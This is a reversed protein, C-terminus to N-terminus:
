APANVWDQVYSQVVKLAGPNPEVIYPRGPDDVENFPLLAVNPLKSGPFRLFPLQKAKSVVMVTWFLDLTTEMADVCLKLAKIKSEIAALADQWKPARPTNLDHVAVIARKGGIELQKKLSEQDYFSWLDLPPTVIGILVDACGAELAHRLRGQDIAEMTVAPGSVPSMGLDNRIWAALDGPSDHRLTPKAAALRKFDDTARESPLWLVIRRQPKQEPMKDFKPIADKLWDDLIKPMASGWVM